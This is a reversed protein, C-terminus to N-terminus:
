LCLDYFFPSHECHVVYTGAYQSSVITLYYFFIIYVDALYYTEETVFSSTIREHTSFEIGKMKKNLPFVAIVVM